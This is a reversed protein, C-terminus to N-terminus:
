LHLLLHAPAGWCGGCLAMHQGPQMSASPNNAAPVPTHSPAPPVPPQSQPARPYASCWPLSWPSRWLSLGLRSCYVFWGGASLQLVLAWQALWWVTEAGLVCCTGRCSCAWSHVLSSGSPQSLCLQTSFGFSVLADNDKWFVINSSHWCSGQFEYSQELYLITHYM